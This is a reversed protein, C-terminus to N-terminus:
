IPTKLIQYFSEIWKSGFSSALTADRQVTGTSGPIKQYKWAYATSTRLGATNRYQALGLNQWGVGSLNPWATGQSGYWNGICIASPHTTTIAPLVIPNSAVITIAGRQEYEWHDFVPSGSRFVHMVGSRPRGATGTTFNWSPSAAWTGNYQCWYTQLAMGDGGPDVQLPLANWTQGGSVNLTIPANDDDRVSLFVYVLDGLLMGSPPTIVLPSTTGGTNEAPTAATGIPVIDGYLDHFLMYHRRQALSQLLSM